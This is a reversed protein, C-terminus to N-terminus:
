YDEPSKQVKKKPLLAHLLKECRRSIRLPKGGETGRELRAIYNTSYGLLEGLARQTLGHALRLATLETNKVV